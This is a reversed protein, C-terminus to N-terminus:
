GFTTWCDPNEWLQSRRLRAADNAQQDASPNLSRGGGPQRRLLGMVLYPLASLAHNDRDIPTESLLSEDPDYQYVGGEMALMPCTDPDTLLRGSQLRGTVAAIGERIANNGRLAKLDLRRLRVIEGAGSPDCPPTDPV